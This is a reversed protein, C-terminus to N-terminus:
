FKSERERIPLVKFILELDDLDPHQFYGNKPPVKKKTSYVVPKKKPASPCMTVVPIRCGSHKPTRCGEEIELRMVMKQLTKKKERKDRFIYFYSNTVQKNNIPVRNLLEKSHFDYFFGRLFSRNSDLSVGRPLLVTNRTTYIPHPVWLTLSM